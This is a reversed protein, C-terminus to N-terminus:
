VIDKLLKELLEASVQFHHWDKMSEWEGGWVSFDNKKFINVVDPTIMGKVLKNRDLYNRGSEPLVRENGEQYLIFPNQVPNIDIAMGYSHMSYITTGEIYRCNFGSSNNAEMSRDDDGDFENILKIQNVPFKIKLLEAFIRKVSDALASFVMIEGEHEVSDFGLYKVKVIVMNELPVPCADVWIGKEKTDKILDESIVM